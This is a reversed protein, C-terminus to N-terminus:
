LVPLFFFVYEMCRLCIDIAAFVEYKEAAEALGALTTFEITRLNPQRQRYMFQLLLELVEASETLPV